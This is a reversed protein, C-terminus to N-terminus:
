VWIDKVAFLMEFSSETKGEKWHSTDKLHLSRSATTSVGTSTSRHGQTKKGVKKDKLM